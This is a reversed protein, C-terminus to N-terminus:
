GRKINIFNSSITEIFPSPINFFGFDNYYSLPYSLFIEKKARTLAVYFLRKEEESNFKGISTPIIGDLLLPIFVYDWELGKSSHITLFSVNENSNSSLNINKFINELFPNPSIYFELSLSKFLKIFDEMYIYNRFLIGITINNDKKLINKIQNYISNIEDLNNKFITLTPKKLSIIESTLKKYFCQKLNKSFENSLNVIEYTSRYNRKLTITKVSPFDNYFNLINDILAGKFSYISQYDDGVVMLNGKKSLLKLIDVQVKDTDQYEDVMIYQFTLPFIDLKLLNYFHILLDDFTYFNEVKKLNDLDQFFVEVISQQKKELKKFTYSKFFIEKSVSLSNMIFDHSFLKKIDKYYISKKSLNIIEDVTLIKFFKNKSYKKLFKYALSHFTEIHINSTPLFTLIRDKIELIAKKTFTLILINNPPTQLELLLLARYIIVRTKGSGAGALVLFYGNLNIVAILQEFNLNNTLFIKFNNSLNLNKFSINNLHNEKM